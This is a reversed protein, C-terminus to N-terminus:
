AAVRAPDSTATRNDFVTLTNTAEDFRANHPRIIGDYPDNLIELRPANATPSGGAPPTSSLVWALEGTSRDVGYAADLHRGSAVYDGNDLRQLSNTHAVDFEIFAKDADVTM